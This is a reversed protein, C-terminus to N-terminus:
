FKRKTENEPDFKAELETITPEDKFLWGGLYENSDFKEVVDKIRKTYAEKLAKIKGKDTTPNSAKALTDKIWDKTPEWLSNCRWILYVGATKCNALTSSIYEDNNDEEILGNCCNFGCSKLTMLDKLPIGHSDNLIPTSAVISIEGPTPGKINNGKRTKALDNEM